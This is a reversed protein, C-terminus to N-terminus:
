HKQSLPRGRPQRGELKEVDSKLIFPDRGLLLPAM